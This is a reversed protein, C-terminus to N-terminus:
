DCRNSTSNYLFMPECLHDLHLNVMNIAMNDHEPSAEYGVLKEDDQVQSVSPAEEDHPALFPYWWNPKSSFQV